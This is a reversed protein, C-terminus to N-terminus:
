FPIIGDDTDNNYSDGGSATTNTAPTNVSPSAQNSHSADDQYFAQQLAAEVANIRAQCVKYAKISEEVTSVLSDIDPEASQELKAANAQLIQYAQKFNQNATNM